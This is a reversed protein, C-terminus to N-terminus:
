YRVYQNALRTLWHTLWNNNISLERSKNPDVVDNAKTKIFVAIV